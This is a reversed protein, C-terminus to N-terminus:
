CQKKHTLLSCFAFWVTCLLHLVMWVCGLSLEERHGGWLGLLLRGEEWGRGGEGEHLRAVLVCGHKVGNTLGGVHVEIEHVTFYQIVPFFFQPRTVAIYMYQQQFECILGKHECKCGSLTM